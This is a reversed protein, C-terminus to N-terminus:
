YRARVRPAPAGDPCTHDVGLPIGNVSRDFDGVNWGGLFACRRIVRVASPYGYPAPIIQFSPQTDYSEDYPSAFPNFPSANPGYVVQASVPTTEFPTAAVAFVVALGFYRIMRSM